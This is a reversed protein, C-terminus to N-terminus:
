SVTYTDLLSFACSKIYLDQKNLFSRGVLFYSSLDENFVINDTLVIDKNQKKKLLCLM